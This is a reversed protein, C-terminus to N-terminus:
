RWRGRNRAILELKAIYSGIKHDKLGLASGVFPWLIISLLPVIIAIGPPTARLPAGRRAFLYRVTGTHRYGFFATPPLFPVVDIGSVVRYHPAKVIEDFDSGGVRPAGFTYVAALRPGLVESAGYAASAVLALAGGLSHGALYIPKELFRTELDRRIEGDVRKFAKFFGGHVRVKKPHDPLVVPAARLALNTRADASSNTGRFVVALFEDAEVLYAETEERAYTARLKMGGEGLARQLVEVLDPQEFKVYALLALKAMLASMRDSYAARQVPVGSVEDSRVPAWRFLEEQGARKVEALEGEVRARAERHGAELEDIARRKEAVAVELARRAAVFNEMWSKKQSFDEPDLNVPRRAM